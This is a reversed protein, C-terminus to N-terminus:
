RLGSWRSRRLKQGSKGYCDFLVTLSYILRHIQGEQNGQSDEASSIRRSRLGLDVTFPGMFLQVGTGGQCLRLGASAFSPANGRDM